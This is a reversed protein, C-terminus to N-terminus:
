RRHSRPAYYKEHDALSSKEDDPPKEGTTLPGTRVPNPPRPATIQAPRPADSGTTVAPMRLAFLRQADAVSEPTIMTGERTLFRLESFIAPNKALHLLYRPGEPDEVIASLMLPTLEQSASGVVQDYDPVTQKFADRRSAFTNLNTKIVQQQETQWRQTHELAQRSHGEHQEKKLEWRVHARLHSGYPDNEAAFDELQPEKDTFQPILPPPQTFARAQATQQPQPRGTSELAAALSPAKGNGNTGAKLADREAEATRLKQTLERIRPVDQPGAQQSKARHRQRAFKGREDRDVVAPKAEAGEAPPPADSFQTEHESLSTSEEIQEPTPTSTEVPTEM